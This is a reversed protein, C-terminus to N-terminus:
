PSKPKHVTFIFIHQYTFVLRDFRDFAFEQLYKAFSAIRSQFPIRDALHQQDLNNKPAPYVAIFTLLRDM